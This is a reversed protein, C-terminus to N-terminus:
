SINISFDEGLFPGPSGSVNYISIGLFDIAIRGRSSLLSPGVEKTSSM